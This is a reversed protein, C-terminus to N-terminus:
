AQKCRPCDFVEYTIKDIEDRWQEAAGAKFGTAGCSCAYWGLELDDFPKRDIFLEIEEVSMRWRANTILRKAGAQRLKEFYL